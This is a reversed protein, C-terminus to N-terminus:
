DLIRGRFKGNTLTKVNGGSDYLKCSFTAAVIKTSGADVNNDIFETISFTSGTQAGAYDTTWEESNIWYSVVAGAVIPTANSYRGYSKAGPTFLSNRTPYDSPNTINGKIIGVGGSNLSLANEIFAYELIEWVGGSGSSSTGMGSGWTLNDCQYTVWTGDIKAQFYFATTIAPAGTNNNNTTTVPDKKKCSSISIVMLLLALFAYHQKIM